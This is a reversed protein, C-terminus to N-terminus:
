PVIVSDTNSLPGYLNEPIEGLYTELPDNWSTQYTFINDYGVGALPRKIFEVHSDVFLVNQGEGNHNQSNYPRWRESGIKLIEELDNFDGGSPLETVGSYIDNTTRTNGDETGAMFFPGKDSNVPMRVDMTARPKGRRAYPLQYGYSMYPYGRFQFRNKGPQAASEPLGGESDNERNRLDDPSDSSSPCVFEAPTSHGAVVLLFLARSPHSASTSASEHEGPDAPPDVIEQTITPESVSGM